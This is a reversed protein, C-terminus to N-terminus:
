KRRNSVELQKTEYINIPKRSESSFLYVKEELISDCLDGIEKEKKMTSLDNKEIINNYIGVILNKQKINKDDKKAFDAARKAGVAYLTLYEIDTFTFGFEVLRSISEKLFIYNDPSIKKSIHHNKNNDLIITCIIESYTNINIDLIELIESFKISYKNFKDEWKPAKKQRISSMKSINKGDVLM